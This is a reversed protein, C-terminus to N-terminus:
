SRARERAAARHQRVHADHTRLQRLAIACEEILRVLDAQGLQAIRAQGTKTYVALEAAVPVDETLASNWAGRVHVGGFKVHHTTSM